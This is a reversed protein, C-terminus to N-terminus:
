LETSVLKECATGGILRSQAENILWSGEVRKLRFQRMTCLRIGYGGEWRQVILQYGTAVATDDDVDIHYNLQLHESGYVPLAKNLKEEEDQMNRITDKGKLIEEQGSADRVFTLDDTWLKLFNETRYLDANFSYRVLVDRIAEKDELLRVKGKLTDLEQLLETNNAM